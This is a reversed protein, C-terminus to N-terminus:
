ELPADAAPPDAVPTEEIVVPPATVSGSAEAAEEGASPGGLEEPGKEETTEDLEKLDDDDLLDESGMMQVFAAVEDSAMKPTVTGAVVRRMLAARAVVRVLAADEELEQIRSSLAEEREVKERRVNLLDNELGKAHDLAAKLRERQEGQFRESIELKSELDGIQVSKANVEEALQAQKKKAKEAEKRAQKVDSQNLSMEEKIKAM